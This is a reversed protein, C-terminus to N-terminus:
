NGEQLQLRAKKNLLAETAQCQKRDLDVAIVNLGAQKAILAITGRGVFPDCITKVPSWKAVFAVAASAANWPTGNAYLKKGPPLVDPTAAGTTMASHGFCLMHAYTPRQLHTSGVPRHLAIKHWICKLGAATALNM